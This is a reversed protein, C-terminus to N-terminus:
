RTRGWAGSFESGSTLIQQWGTDEGRLAQVHLAAIAAPLQYPGLLSASVSGAVRATGEDILPTDWRSGGQEAM